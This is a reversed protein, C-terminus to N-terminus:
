SHAIFYYETKKQYHRNFEEFSLVAKKGVFNKLLSIRLGCEEVLLKYIESPSTHYYDSAGLGFEFVIVPRSNKILARAGKLVLYEAGEVDIKMFRICTGPPIVNDLARTEVNIERIDPVSTAYSRKKLGSYAPANRVFHFNTKGDKDSLAYPLVTARNGYHRLLGKYYEPIPEFAFHHGNPALRIMRALIEGNHSGVDICNSDPRLVSQMIKETYRDYAMNRTLDIGALSCIKKIIRKLM